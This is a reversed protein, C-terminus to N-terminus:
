SDICSLVVGSGPYWYSLSLSVSSVVFSLWSTLRMKNIKFESNGMDSCKYKENNHQLMKSTNTRTIILIHDFLGKRLNGYIVTITM